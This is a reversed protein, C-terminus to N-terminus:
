QLEVGGGGVDGGCWQRGKTALEGLDRGRRVAGRSSTPSPRRQDRRGEGTMEGGRSAGAKEGAGADTADQGKWEYLVARTTTLGLAWRQESRAPSQRGSTPLQELEREHVDYRRSRCDRCM